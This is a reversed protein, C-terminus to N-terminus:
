GRTDVLGPATGEPEGAASSPLTHRLPVVTGPSPPSGGQLRPPCIDLYWGDYVGCLDSPDLGVQRWLPEVYPLSTEYCDRSLIRGFSHLATPIANAAAAIPAALDCPEFIVLDPHWEAMVPLLNVLRDPADGVAFRRAISFPLKAPGPLADLEDLCAFWRRDLEDPEVGAAMWAFGGEEVRPAYASAMAFAVDHGQAKLVHALPVLPYFHGDGPTSSFLVKM